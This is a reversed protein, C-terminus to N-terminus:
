GAKRQLQRREYESLGGWIGWAEGTDLAYALCAAKVPCAPAGMGGNCIFKGPATPEGKEPYFTEPPVRRCAARDRWDIM